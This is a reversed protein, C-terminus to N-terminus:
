ANYEKNWRDIQSDDFCGTSKVLSLFQPWNEKPRKSRALHEVAVALVYKPETPEDPLASPAHDYWKWGCNACQGKPDGQSDCICPDEIYNTCSTKMELLQLHTELWGQSWRLDALNSRKRSRVCLEHVESAPKIGYLKPM